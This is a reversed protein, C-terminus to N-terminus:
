RGVSECRRRFPRWPEPLSRSRRLSCASSREGSLALRTRASRVEAKWAFRAQASSDIHPSVGESGEGSVAPVPGRLTRSFRKSPRQRTPPCGAPKKLVVVPSRGARSAKTSRTRPTFSSSGRGCVPASKPTRWDRPRVRRRVGGVEVETESMAMLNHFWAPHTDTGGKSGVVVVDAGDELYMLPTERAQGSRRGRNHLVLVPVGMLKGGFRGRTLHM